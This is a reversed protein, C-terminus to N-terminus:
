TDKEQVQEVVQDGQQQTTSPELSILPANESAKTNNKPDRPTSQCDGTLKPVLKHINYHDPQLHTKRDVKRLNEVL